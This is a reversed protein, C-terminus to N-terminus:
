KKVLNVEDCQTKFNQFLQQTYKEAGEANLHNPDAFYDYQYVHKYKDIDFLCLVRERGLANIIPVLEKYQYYKWQLPVVFFPTIGRQESISIINQMRRLFPESMKNTSLSKFNKVSMQASTVVEEYLDQETQRMKVKMPIFGQYVVNSDNPGISQEQRHQRFKLYEQVKGVNLMNETYDLSYHFLGWARRELPVSSQVLSSVSTLYNKSDLWYFSRPVNLNEYRITGLWDLEIFAYKFTLSDHLLLNEYVHLSELPTLGGIGFNYSKVNLGAENALQDFLVPNIQNHTKSSGIFLSNYTNKNAVLYERKDSIEYSGWYYPLLRKYVLSYLAANILLVLVGVVAIKLFVKKM